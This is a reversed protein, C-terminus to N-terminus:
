VMLCYIILNGAPIGVVQSVFSLKIVFLLVARVVIKYSWFDSVLNIIFFISSILTDNSRACKSDLVRILVLLGSMYRNSNM